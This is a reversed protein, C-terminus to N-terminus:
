LAIVPDPEIGLLHARVAGVMYISGAVLVTGSTPSLALARQLAVIPDPEAEGPAIARLAELSAPARGAPCTYVRRAAFPLLERLMPEFAKDALAGFVLTVDEPDLSMTGLAASLARAGDINHACDLLVRRDGVVIAELRGPWTASAVGREVHGIDLALETSVLAMGAAVAANFIQHRGPLSPSLTVVRGDPFTAKARAGSTDVRVPDFGAAASASCLWLPAAGTARASTLISERAEDNVPGVVLPAGPKAIGAKERAVSAVSTGLLAEHELHRGAVGEAISVIGTALPRTVLNTADLRGGLGVELVVVDLKARSFAVFAAMTLTEFFTLDEGADTFVEDLAAYFTDDAIPEGDVRVREAIKSLHPSTYLGTRLGAQRLIAELMASTSGKGNTGAVHLARVAEQPDGLARAARRVRELGLEVGLHGRAYLARLLDHGPRM